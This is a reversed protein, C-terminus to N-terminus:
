IREHFGGLAGGTEVGEATIFTGTSTAIKFDIARKIRFINGEFPSGSSGRM